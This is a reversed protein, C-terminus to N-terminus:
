KSALEHAEDRISGINACARKLTYLILDSRVEIEEFHMTKRGSELQVALDLATRLSATLGNYWEQDSYYQPSVKTAQAVLEGVTKAREPM